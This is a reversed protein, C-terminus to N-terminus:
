RAEVVDHRAHSPSAIANVSGNESGSTVSCVGIVDSNAPFVDPDAEEVKSLSATPTGIASHSVTDGKLIYDVLWFQVANLVLPAAVMVIILKAKPYNDASQFLHYGIYDLYNRLYMEILFLFVKVVLTIVMFVSLQILFTSVLPPDGYEGSKLRPYNFSEAFINVCELLLFTLSVGVAIDIVFNVFYFDCEDSKLESSNEHSMFEAIAINLCHLMM